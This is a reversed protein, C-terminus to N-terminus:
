LGFDQLVDEPLSADFDAAIYTIELLNLGSERLLEPKGATEEPEPLESSNAIM